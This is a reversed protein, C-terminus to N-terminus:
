EDVFIKMLNRVSEQIRVQYSGYDVNAKGNLPFSKLVESLEDSNFPDFYFGNEALQEKNVNISSAIVPVEISIADEIVTSWGEFLSPQIVAQSYKMLQIQDNRPILQLMSIYGQLQYDEIIQQIEAIYPSKKAKPFGGTFVIHKHIGQKKLKALALLVVQHNKHKHFQNSVIFYDNPIKYKLKLDQLDPSTIGKNVSVFHFIHFVPKTGLNYFKDFDDKVAQSSVILDESNKLMFFLRIARHILTQRTFFEPYYKHQLDAYWAVVKAKTRNKVPYNRNPYIADLSYDQILNDVFMNKRQVWSLVFGKIISPSTKKIFQIYPYEIESIYKELEETYFFYIQPRDKDELYNLTKVLNLIYTVGGM